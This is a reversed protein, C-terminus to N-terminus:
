SASLKTRRLTILQVDITDAPDTLDPTQFTRHEVTWPTAELVDFFHVTALRSPETLLVVGDDATAREFVNFLAQYDTQDYIIDAGLVVDYRRTDSWAHWDAHASSIRDSVGNTAANRRCLDLALPDIDGQTVSAGARAAVV